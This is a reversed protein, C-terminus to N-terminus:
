FLIAIFIFSIYKMEMKDWSTKKKQGNTTEPKLM